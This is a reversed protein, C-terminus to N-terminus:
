QNLFSRAHPNIAVTENQINKLYSQNAMAKERLMKLAKSNVNVDFNSDKESVISQIVSQSTNINAGGAHNQNNNISSSM